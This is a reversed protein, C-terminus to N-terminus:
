NPKQNQGINTGRTEHKKFSEGVLFLDFSNLSIIILLIETQGIMVRRWAKMIWSPGENNM